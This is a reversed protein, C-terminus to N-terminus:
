RAPDATKGKRDYHKRFTQESAHDLAERGRPHDTAYKARLDRPQFTALGAKKFLPRLRQFAQNLAGESLALGRRNCILAMPAVETGTHLKAKIEAIAAGLAPSWKITMVKGTKSEVFRIGVNETIQTLMLRRVDTVRRGVFEIMTLWAWVRYASPWGNDGAELAVAKALALEADTVYRTRAKQKPWDFRVFPDHKAMGWQIFYKWIASFRKLMRWGDKTREPLAYLHVATIDAPRMSGYVKLLKDARRKETRWTTERMDGSRILDPVKTEIYRRIGAGVTGPVPSRLGAVEANAEAVTKAELPQWAPKGDVKIRMRFGKGHPYIGKALGIDTKRRRPSM